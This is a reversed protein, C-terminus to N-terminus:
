EVLRSFSNTNEPSTEQGEFCHVLNERLHLLTKLTSYINARQRIEHQYVLVWLHCLSTVKINKVLPQFASSHLAGWYSCRQKRNFRICSCKQITVESARKKWLHKSFNFQWVLYLTFQMATINKSSSFAQKTVQGWREFLLWPQEAAILCLANLITKWM